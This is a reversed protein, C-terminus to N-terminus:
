QSIQHVAICPDFRSSIWTRWVICSAFASLLTNSLSRVKEFCWLCCQCCCLLVDGVKSNLNKVRKQVRTLIARVFRITGLLLSGYACTGFHYWLTDCVSGIVTLSGVRSKDRSFYWKAYCMALIMDGVAVIFCSTWFFCFLFYWAARSVYTDFSYTRVAVETGTDYDLTFEQVTIEGLSALHIAYIMFVIIFAAFGAAELVPLLMILPMSHVARASQKVCGISLQIQTRLCCMILALFGGIFFVVIAAIRTAKITDDSYVQPDEKEWIDAQRWAYYGALFVMTLSIFISGWIVSNVLTPIRLLLMYVFSVLLSVGFGFCLIYARATWCDAYLNNWITYGPTGQQLTSNSQVEEMIAAEAETTLYCYSLLPYTDGVYYSYGYGENVGESTWSEQSSNNPFCADESCYLADESSSYNAMQIFDPALEAGPAQWIGGYTIMTRVDTLNNSVIGGSKLSPCEKVCVGGTYSNIFILYPYETMDAAYDTGCVNGDYDLPYLVVRYDGDICAYIGIYTMAAWMAVILLSCLVDTCHRQGTPGDFDAPAVLKDMGEVDDSM